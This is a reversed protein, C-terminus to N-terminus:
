GKRPRQGKPPRPAKKLEELSLTGDNNTDIRDFKELMPGKIENKSLRGDGNIDMKNFRDVMRDEDPPGKREELDNPKEMQQVPKEAVADKQSKCSSTFSLVSVLLILIGFNKM